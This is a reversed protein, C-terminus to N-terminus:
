KEELRALAQRADVWVNLSPRVLDREKTPGNSPGTSRVLLELAARLADREETLRDIEADMNAECVRHGARVDDYMEQRENGWVEIRALAAADDFSLKHRLRAFDEKITM